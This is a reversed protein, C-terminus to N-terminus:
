CEEIKRRGSGLGTISYVSLWFPPMWISTSNISCSVSIGSQCIQNNGSGYTSPCAKWLILVPTDVVYQCHLSRFHGALNVCWWSVPWIFYEFFKWWSWEFSRLGKILFFFFCPVLLQVLNELLKKFAFEQLLYLNVSQCRLSNWIISQMFQWELMESIIIKKGGGVANESNQVLMKMIKWFGFVHNLVCQALFAPNAHQYVSVCEVLRSRAHGCRVPRALISLTWRLHCMVMFSTLHFIGFVKLVIVRVLAFKEDPLFLFFSSWSASCSKKLLKKIPFQTM